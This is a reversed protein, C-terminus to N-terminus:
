PSLLATLAPIGCKLLFQAATSAYAKDKEVMESLQDEIRDIRERVTPDPSGNAPQLSVYEKALADCKDWVAKRGLRLRRFDLNMTKVTYRVRDENVPGIDAAPVAKGDEQFSLLTVDSRRCPDLLKPAESIPSHGGYTGELSGSVLAFRNGKKVNGVQGAMRYNTWDYALWWYGPRTSGDENIAEAKPRYHDVDVHSIPVPADTYWGKDDSLGLLDDRLERWIANSSKKLFAMRAAHSPLTELKATRADARKVWSADPSYGKRPIFRM